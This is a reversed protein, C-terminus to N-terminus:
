KFQLLPRQPLWHCLSYGIPQFRELKSLVSLAENLITDVEVNERLQRILIQFLETDHDSVAAFQQTIDGVARSDLVTRRQGGGRNLRRSRVRSLAAPDYGIM